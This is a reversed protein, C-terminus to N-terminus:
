KDNPTAPESYRFTIGYETTAKANTITYSYEYDQNTQTKASFKLVINRDTNEDSFMLYGKRSTTDVFTLGYKTDNTTVQVKATSVDFFRELSNDFDVSVLTNALKCTLSVSKVDGKSILFPVSGTYYPKDFGAYTLTGANVSLMYADAMLSIKEPVKDMGEYLRVLKNNSNYIRVKASSNLENLVTQDTIIARSLEKEVVDDFKLNLIAVGDGNTSDAERKESACAGMLLATAVLFSLIYKNKMAM